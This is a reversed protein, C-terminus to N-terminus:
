TKMRQLKLILNFFVNVYSDAIRKKEEVVKNLQENEDLLQFKQESLEKIKDNMMSIERNKLIIEQELNINKEAYYNKESELKGLEHLKKEREKYKNKWVDLEVFQEKIIIKQKQFESLSVNEESIKFGNAMNKNKTIENNINELENLKKNLNENEILLESM